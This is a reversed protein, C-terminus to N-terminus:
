AERKIWQLQVLFAFDEQVQRHLIQKARERWDAFSILDTFSDRFAKTGAVKLLAKPSTGNVECYFGLNRLYVTATLYSKAALNDFWRRVDEDELLYAYKARMYMLLSKQINM